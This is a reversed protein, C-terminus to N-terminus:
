KGSHIFALAAKGTLPMRKTDGRKAARSKDNRGRSKVREREARERLIEERAAADKADGEKTRRLFGPMDDTAAPAPTPAPQAPPTPAPAPTPAPTPSPSPTPTPAPKLALRDYRRAQRRLVSLKGELKVLKGILVDRAALARDINTTLERQRREQITTM